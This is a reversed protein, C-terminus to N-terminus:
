KKKQLQAFAVVFGKVGNGNVVHPTTDKIFTYLPLGQWTVQVQGSPLTYTGLGVIGRGPFLVDGPPLVVAPWASAFSQAAVFSNDQTDGVNTYLTYGAQTTLITGLGTQKASFIVFKPHHVKHSTSASAGTSFGASVVLLAILLGIGGLRAVVNQRVYKTFQVTEMFHIEQYDNPNDTTRALLEFRDNQVAAAIRFYGFVAHNCAPPALDHEGACITELALDDRCSKV